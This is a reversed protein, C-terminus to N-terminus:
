FTTLLRKWRVLHPHAVANLYAFVRERIQGSDWAGEPAQISMYIVVPAGVIASRPVFGWFRSDFSNARNDGMVFYSNPPVTVSEYAYHEHPNMPSSLYPERLRQGNVWVASDRVEVRDGPVGIVRKIYDSSGPIPPRFIVLQQRQPNRWLRVQWDTFPVGASFGARSMLLHDGVLLTREMSGSPIVRAQVLTGQIILFAALVWTWSVVERLLRSRWSAKTESM